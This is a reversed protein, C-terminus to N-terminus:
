DSPQYFLICLKSDDMKSTSQNTKTQNSCDSHDDHGVLVLNMFNFAMSNMRGGTAYPAM